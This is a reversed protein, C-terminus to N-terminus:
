GTLGGTAGFKRVEVLLNQLDTPSVGPIRAAQGITAPRVAELKQRAEYSLSAFAMYPADAPLPHDGRRALARAREEEREIYGAYKIEMEVVTLADVDVAPDSVLGDEAV